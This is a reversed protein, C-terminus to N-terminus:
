VLFPLLLLDVSAFNFYFNPKYLMRVSINNLFYEFIRGPTWNSNLYAIKTGQPSPSYSGPLYPFLTCKKFFIKVM